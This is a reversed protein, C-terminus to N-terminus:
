AEAGGMAAAEAAEALAPILGGEGVAEEISAKLALPTNAIFEELSIKGDGDADIAEFMAEFSLKKGPKMKKPRPLKMLAAKLEDFSVDGSGDSDFQKFIKGFDVNRKALVKELREAQGQRKALEEALLAAQAADGEGCADIKAQVEAIQKKRKERQDELTIFTSIKGDATLRAQIALYVEQPLNGSWEGMDIQGDGDTDMKAILADIDIKGQLDLAKLARKIEKADLSGSKDTDLQSFAAFLPNQPGVEPAPAAAAAADADALDRLMKRLRVVEAKADTVDSGDLPLELEALYAAKTADTSAAAGM